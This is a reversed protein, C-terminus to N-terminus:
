INLDKAKARAIELMSKDSVQGDEASKIRDNLLIKLESWAEDEDSSQKDFLKDLILNKITKGQLAALAKIQKHQEGTVDIVLRSM